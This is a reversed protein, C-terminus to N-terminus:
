PIMLLHIFVSNMSLAWCFFDYRDLSLVCLFRIACDQLFECNRLWSHRALKVWAMLESGNPLNELINLIGSSLKDGSCSDTVAAGAGYCSGDGEKSSDVMSGVLPESDLKFLDTQQDAQRVYLNCSGDEVKIDHNCSENKIAFIIDESPSSAGGIKPRKREPESEDATVNMNLDIERERKVTASLDEETSFASAERNVTTSSDEETSFVSAKDKIEVHQMISSVDPMIVGASAGHHTLIERLAMISGHRVEWVSYEYLIGSDDFYPFLFLQLTGQLFVCVGFFFCLKVLISCTWCSNNLLVEFPGSGMEMLTLTIMMM